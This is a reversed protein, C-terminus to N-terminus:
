ESMREKVVYIGDGKIELIEYKELFDNLDVCDNVEVEYKCYDVRNTSQNIAFNLGFIMLILVIGMMIKKLYKNLIEKPTMNVGIIICIASLIFLGFTFFNFKMVMMEQLVDVGWM